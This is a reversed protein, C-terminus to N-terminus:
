ILTPKLRNLQLYQRSEWEKIRVLCMLGISITLGIIGVGIGILHEEM